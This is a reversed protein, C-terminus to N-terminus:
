TPSPKAQPRLCVFGMEFPSTYLYNITLNDHTYVTTLVFNYISSEKVIASQGRSLLSTMLQYQISEVTHWLGYIFM